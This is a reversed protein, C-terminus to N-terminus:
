EAHRVSNEYGNVITVEPKPGVRWTVTNNHGILNIKAAEDLRVRNGWGNLSISNCTGTLTIDNQYGSISVDLGDGCDRTIRQGSMVISLAKGNKQEATVGGAVSAATAAARTAADVAAGVSGGVVVNTSDTTVASDHEGADANATTTAGKYVRNGPGTDQVAPNGALWVVLNNTGPTQIADIRDVRVHNGSGSVQLDHCHGTLRIVNNAGSVQIDRGECSRTIRQSSANFQLTEASFASACGASWVVAGVLCLCSLTYKM